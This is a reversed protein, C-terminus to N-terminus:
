NELEPLVRRLVDWAEEANGSENFDSVLLGIIQHSLSKEMSLASFAPNWWNPTALEYIRTGKECFVINSLGAGHPGVVLEAKQFLEANQYIDTLQHPRLVTFGKNELKQELREEFGLSRTSGVRSVYLWLKKRDEAASLEHPGLFQNMLLDVEDRVLPAYPDRGVCVLGSIQWTGDEVTIFDFGSQELFSDVFRPRKHPILILCHPLRQMVELLKPLSELLFHYYNEFGITLFFKPRDALLVKGLNNRSRRQAQRFNPWARMMPVADSIGGGRYNSEEIAIHDVFALGHPSVVFCDRIQYALNANRSFCHDAVTEGKYDLSVVHLIKPDIWKWSQVIQKAFLPHSLSASMPRSPTIRRSILGQLIELIRM